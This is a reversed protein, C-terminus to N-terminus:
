NIFKHVRTISKGDIEVKIEENGSTRIRQHSGTIIFGTKGVSLSLKKAVLWRNLNLLDLNVKKELETLSDAAATINADDGCM